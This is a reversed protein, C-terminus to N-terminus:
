GDEKIVAETVTIDSYPLPHPGTRIALVGHLIAPTMLLTVGRIGDWPFPNNDLVAILMGIMLISYMFSLLAHSSWVLLHIRLGIGLLLAGALVGLIIGWIWLPFADEILTLSASVRDDGTSYDWSRVIAQTLLSLIVVLVDIGTLRPTEWSGRKM